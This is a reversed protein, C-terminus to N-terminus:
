KDLARRMRTLTWEVWLDEPWVHGERFTLATTGDLEYYGSARFIASDLYAYSMENIVFRDQTFLIDYAMSDFGLRQNLSLCYRLPAEPIPRQYDIRGSGSARFDNPRNNRWFGYAYRDGIVTIRLDAENGPVFVQWYVVGTREDGLLKQRVKAWLWPTFVGAWLRRITSAYRSKVANWRQQCLLQDIIRRAASRERVLRVNQSAAGHSEKFVFPPHATELCALADQYDFTVITDPTPVTHVAFLYSQAIKSEFHWVTNFSPVVLKGLYHELFYIKEKVYSASRPGMYKPQWIVADYSAVSQIWDHRELNVLAYELADGQATRKALANAFKEHWLGDDM